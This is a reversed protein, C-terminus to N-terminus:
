TLKSSLISLFWGVAPIAVNFFCKSIIEFPTVVIFKRTKCLIINEFYYGSLEKSNNWILVYLSKGGDLALLSFLVWVQQFMILLFAVPSGGNVFFNNLQLVHTFWSRLTTKFWVFLLDLLWLPGAFRRRTLIKKSSWLHFQKIAAITVTKGREFIGWLLLFSKWFEARKRSGNSTLDVITPLLSNGNVVDLGLLVIRFM